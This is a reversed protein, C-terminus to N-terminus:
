EHQQRKPDSLPESYVKTVVRNRMLKMDTFNRCINQVMDLYHDTGDDEKYYYPKVSVCNHHEFLTNLLTRDSNGCSHGMICIQFPASEIFELMRRYNDSELYRISKIHRLCENENMDKLKQFGGDLEDGYGFIVSDPDDLRGHIYIITAYDKKSIYLEPTKTYNFNLIMIRSPPKEDETIYDYYANSGVAIERKLIPRYIKDKIEKIVITKKESEFKLYEILQNKLIDLHSNLEKYDPFIFGKDLSMKEETLLSYYENEIDVWKKTAVSKCIRQLFPSMTYDCLNRDGMATSVVKINDWPEFPDEKKFHYRWVYGWMALHINDKLTFSCLGDSEERKQGHLLRHRWQNWYWSIFNEYRTNLGHALDFGNGILVLRNM